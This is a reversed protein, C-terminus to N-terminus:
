GYGWLNVLDRNLLTSLEDIEDRTASIIKMRTESSFTVPKPKSFLINRYIERILRYGKPSWRKGKQKFPFLTRDLYQKTRRFRIDVSKNVLDFEPRFTSDINLFNLIERYVGEKNSIFDDYIIAKVQRGGFQEAYRRYQTSYRARQLYYLFRVDFCGDPVSRGVMRESELAIAHDFSREIEFLCSNRLLQRHYSVLFEVPNRFIMIIKAAPCYAKINKAAVSSYLYATSGDLVVKQNPLPTYLAAYNKETRPQKALGFYQSELDTCFYQPEKTLGGCVEPHRTLYSYLASTGSKPQGVIFTNVLPRNHTSVINRKTASIMM